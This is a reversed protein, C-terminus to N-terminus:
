LAPSLIPFNMKGAKNEDEVDLMREIWIAKGRKTHSYFPAWCYFFESKWLIGKTM